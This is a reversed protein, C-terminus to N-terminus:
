SGDLFYSIGSLTHLGLKASSWQYLVVEVDLLFSVTGVFVHMCM